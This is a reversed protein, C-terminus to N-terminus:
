KYPNVTIPGDTCYVSLTGGKLFWNSGRRIKAWELQDGDYVIFKLKKCNFFCNPGIQKISKPLKITVLNICNSFASAELANVSSAVEVAVLDKNKSYEHDNASYLPTRKCTKIADPLPHLYRIKHTNNERAEKRQKENKDLPICLTFIGGLISVFIITLIGLPIQGKTGMFVQRLILIVLINFVDIVFAVILVILPFPYYNFIFVSSLLGVTIFGGIWSLISSAVKM